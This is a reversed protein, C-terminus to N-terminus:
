EITRVSYTIYDLVKLDTNLKRALGLDDGLSKVKTMSSGDNIKSLVFLDCLDDATLLSHGGAEVDEHKEYKNM